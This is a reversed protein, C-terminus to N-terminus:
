TNQSKRTTEKDCHGLLDHMCQISMETRNETTIAGSEHGPPFYFSHIVGCLM